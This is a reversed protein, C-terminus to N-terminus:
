RRLVSGSGSIDQTVKPDGIYQISGSGTVAATLTESAAVIANGSGTVTATARRSAMQPGNYSGSGSIALNLADTSGQALVAGSGSIEVRLQDPNIGTAEADGSGSVSLAELRKVHVTFLLEKTPSLSAFPDKTGLELTNGRVETRIHPLLNDDTTVTVSESGSQEIVVRGSGSLAVATFAPVPRAETVTKGSGSIANCASVLMCASLLSSLSLPLLVRSVPMMLIV